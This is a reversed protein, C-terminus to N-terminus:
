CAPGQWCHQGASRQDPQPLPHHHGGHVGEHGCSHRSAPAGRGQAHDVGPEMCTLPDCPAEAAASPMDQKPCAPHWALLTPATPTLDSAHSHAAAPMTRLPMDAGVINATHAFVTRGDPHHMCAQQIIRLMHWRRQLANPAKCPVIRACTASHCPGGRGAGASTHVHCSGEVAPM